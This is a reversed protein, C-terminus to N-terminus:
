KNEEEEEDEGEIKAVAARLRLLVRVGWRFNMMAHSRVHLKFSAIVEM